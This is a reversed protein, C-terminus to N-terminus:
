RFYSIIGEAILAHGKENPHNSQSMYGDLTEGEM